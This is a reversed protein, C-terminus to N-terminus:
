EEGAGLEPLDLEYCIVSMPEAEEGDDEDDTGGGQMAMAAQLFDTVVFLKDDVFFYGDNQPDGQGNLTVQATFRGDKDYVDFVGVSGDPQRNTGYSSLVWLSGDKRPYINQIDKWYDEVEITSNPANRTFAEYIAKVEAVEEPTRTLREYEREIVHQLKGDPGWVNITYDAHVPAAFIRGDPGISWRRDFTDWVEESIVPNAFVWLREEELLTALITGENDICALYNGQTMKDQEFKNHMFAVVLHKGEHNANAGRLFVQGEMQPLAHEGAPEGDTNLLVLRGPATQVVGVTNDDMIFMGAPQRFEGPGEGDRGITNVWGGDGDFIKVESLQSDLLYINGDSDSQVSTIVGFFENEDDTDGGLRWLEKLEATVPPNIPKTPNKVHAVGAEDTTTTGAWDGAVALGSLSVVLALALGLVRVSRPPASVRM